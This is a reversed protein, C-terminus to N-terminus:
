HVHYGLRQIADAHNERFVDLHAPSLHNKWDGVTAARIRRSLGKRASLLVSAECRAGARIIRETSVPRMERAARALEADRDTHLCEYRMVVSRGSELWLLGKALEDGFGNALYHHVDPHDLPLGAMADAPHRKGKAERNANDAQAQVFFYRSVFQDYPDRLVTVIHAPITAALECFRESYDYHTHFISNEPFGGANAWAGFESVGTGRPVETATLWTLDYLDSLLCKVWSNGAKPPAAIVIRM